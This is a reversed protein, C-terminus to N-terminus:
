FQRPQIRRVVKYPLLLTQRLYDLAQIMNRGRPATEGWIETLHNGESKLKMYPKLFDNM